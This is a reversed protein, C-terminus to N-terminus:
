GARIRDACARIPGTDPLYLDMDPGYGTPVRGYVSLIPDTDPEYRTRIRGKLKQKFNEGGVRVGMLRVTSPGISMRETSEQRFFVICFDNSLLYFLVSIM